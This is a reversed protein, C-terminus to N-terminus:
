ASVFSGLVPQLVIQEQLMQRNVSGNPDDVDISEFTFKGNSAAAIEQAVTAITTPGEALNEPLTNPTVYLTLKVPEQISALLADTSQFGFVTKKIARTLDYELNRLQVEVEGNPFPQVEILDRFNLVESQDGYRVLVDFYANVVSAGYRDSAQLPTPQIGYTQNAETELEPDELPDVIEVVVQGNSALAYEELTDRLQPVLPSLLPHTRESFYGRLLLPEQLNSLLDTTAPSLTYQQQETLDLRFNSLPYLWINLVILNLVVLLGTLLWGQRYAATNESDSWRKSDLSIVNLLLFLITLSLYYVLDRLDVVGREISEFRSGAGIARLIEALNDGMFDTVGRSGVIYFLGGILATLILAVIQNDTRSSVFLGIATYAAALL